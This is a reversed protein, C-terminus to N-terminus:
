HGGGEACLFSISVVLVDVAGLVLGTVHMWHIAGEPLEPQVIAVLAVAALVVIIVVLAIQRVNM